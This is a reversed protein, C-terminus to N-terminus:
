RSDGREMVDVDIRNLRYFVQQLDSLDGLPNDRIMLTRLNALGTLASYDSVQNGYMWLANLSQLGAVVSIDSVQNDSFDLSTLGLM